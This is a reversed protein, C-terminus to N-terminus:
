MCLVDQQETGHRKRKEGKKDKNTKNKRKRKEKGGDSKIGKSHVALGKISM